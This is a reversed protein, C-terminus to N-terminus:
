LSARIRELSGALDTAYSAHVWIEFRDSARALVVPCDLLQVAACERHSLVTAVDIGAVLLREAGGRFSSRVGSAPSMSPPVSELPRLRM